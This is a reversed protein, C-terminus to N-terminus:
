FIFSNIIDLPIKLIGGPGEAAFIALGKLGITGCGGWFTMWCLLAFIRFVPGPGAQPERRRARRRPRSPASRQGTPRQRPGGNPDDPDWRDPDDENWAERYREERTRSSRNGAATRRGSPASRQGTPRQRPGENPDNPDWRDPDNENRAERYREERTRSSRNGARTRRGANSGGNTRDGRNDGTYGEGTYNPPQEDERRTNRPDNGAQQNWSAAPEPEPEREPASTPRGSDPEADQPNWHTTGADPYWDDYRARSTANKLSTWAANVLKAEAEREAAKNKPRGAAIDRDPHLALMKAKWATKIEAHSAHKTVGLVRYADGHFIGRSASGM